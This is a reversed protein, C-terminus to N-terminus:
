LTSYLELITDALKEWSAIKKYEEVNHSLIEATDGDFYKIISHKLVEPEAEQAIIGTNYPVIMEALGGKDTAIVPLDFHYAIGVIGSQTASKYPLVCVDAASFFSPTEDDSIYRVHKQLKTGLHLKAILQDYPDFSGYSEGAILLYYDDPLLALTDILVDLGKYSRIFGFFLIVKKDEHIGLKKRAEPKSIKAGFHSYLPHPSLRYKADPIISLLDNRVTKSMVIFGHNQKLFYRIFSMDGPRKEHPIINDLISINKVGNKKLSKCV